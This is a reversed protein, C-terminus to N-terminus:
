WTRRHRIRDSRYPDTSPIALWLGLAGAGLVGGIIFGSPRSGFALYLGSMVALLAGNAILLTRTVLMGHLSRRRM